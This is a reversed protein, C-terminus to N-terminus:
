DRHENQLMINTKEITKTLANNNIYQVGTNESYIKDVNRNRNTKITYVTNHM